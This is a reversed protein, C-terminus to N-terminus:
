EYEYVVDDTFKQLVAYGHPCKKIFDQQSLYPGKLKTEVALNKGFGPIERWNLDSLLNIPIPYVLGRISRESYGSIIIDLPQTFLTLDRKIQLIKITIPYSGLPRGLYYGNNKQELIVNKLISGIPFTKKLMPTDIEKRIREKYYRFRNELNKKRNNDQMRAIKTKEYLLVRRINIRRLLLDSDLLSKLFLFNKKFTDKNEGPLGGIFNLGPLIRPIGNTKTRGYHNIIEIALRAQKENCKLDNKKIVQDDISEIGMAATDGETNYQAIIRLIQKSEEPYIAILGPNINDLHLLKLNPAVKRIGLYLNEIQDPVPRPFSNKFDNMDAQYTMLDAQRGLRFYQNGQQYLSKVEAIVGALSRFSPRGYFAETCFSCYVDRTCGRYTELEIILYPYNPHKQSIFSGNLSYRDVEAYNRKEKLDTGQWLKRAQMAGLAVVLQAYKEIDGRILLGRRNEIEQKIQRSAYRIPGGILTLSNKDQKKQTELFKLVEAVSGIRGGLYKGPVTSGAILIIIEYDNTIGNQRWLDVTLYDINEPLLGASVFAGATYRVYPSIYPPVGFCAPEDVYFDLILVKM